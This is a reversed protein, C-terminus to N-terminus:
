LQRIDDIGPKDKLVYLLLKDVEIGSQAQTSQKKSQFTVMSLAVALVGITYTPVEYKGNFVILSQFGLVFMFCAVAMGVMSPFYQDFMGSYSKSHTALECTRALRQLEATTLSYESIHFEMQASIYKEREIDTDESSYKKKPDNGPYRNLLNSIFRKNLAQKVSKRLKKLAEKLRHENVNESINQNNQSECM